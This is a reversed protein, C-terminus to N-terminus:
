RWGRRSKRARASRRIQWRRLDREARGPQLLVDRLLRSLAAPDWEADVQSVDSAVRIRTVAPDPDVDVFRVALEAPVDVTDRGSDIPAWDVAQPPPPDLHLALHPALHPPPRSPIRSM